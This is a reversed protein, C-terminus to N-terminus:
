NEGYRITLFLRPQCRSVKDGELTVANIKNEKAIRKATKLDPSICFNGFVFNLVTVVNQDRLEGFLKMM